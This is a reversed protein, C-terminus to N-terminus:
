RNPRRPVGVILPKCFFFLVVVAVLLAVATLLPLRDGEATM